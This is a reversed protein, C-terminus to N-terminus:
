FAYLITDTCSTSHHRLILRYDSVYEKILEPVRVFDEFNHYICIALIPRCKAITERAGVLAPYEGGEIDMKIIGVDIGGMEDDIRVVDISIPDGQATVSRNSRAVASYFGDINFLIKGPRSFVGKNIIEVSGIDNEDITELLKVIVTPDPEFAYIKKYSNNAAKNFLVLTDGDYAGCDIYVTDREPRLLSNFLYWDDTTSQADIFDRRKASFHAQTIKRLVDRSLDDALEDYLRQFRERNRLVYSKFDRGSFYHACEFDLDCVRSEGLRRQLENKIEYFYRPSSIVYLDDPFESVADDISLVRYRGAVTKGWLEPNNDCICSVNINALEFKVLIDRLAFGAGFMIVSRDRDFSDLFRDIDSDIGLLDDFYMTM